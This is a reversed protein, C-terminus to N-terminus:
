KNIQKTYINPAPLNKGDVQHSCFYLSSKQVENNGEVRKVIYYLTPNIFITTGLKHRMPM